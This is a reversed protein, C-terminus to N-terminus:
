ARGGVVRCNMRAPMHLMTFPRAQRAAVAGEAEDRAAELDEALEAAAAKARGAARQAAAVERAAQAKAAGLEAQAEGSRDQAVCGFM